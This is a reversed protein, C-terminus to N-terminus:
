NGESEAATKSKAATKAAQAKTMPEPEPAPGSSPREDDALLRWGSAYLHPLSERHVTATGSTEPHIVTVWETDM